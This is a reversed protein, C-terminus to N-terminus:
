TVEKLLLGNAVVMGDKTFRWIKTESPKPQMNQTKEDWKVKDTVNTDPEFLFGYTWAIDKIDAITAFSRPEMHYSGGSKSGFLARLVRLHQGMEVSIVIGSFPMIQSKFQWM